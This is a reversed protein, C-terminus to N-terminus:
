KRAPVVERFPVRDSDTAGHVGLGAGACGGGVDTVGYFHLSNDAAVFDKGASWGHQTLLLSYRAVVAPARTGAPFTLRGDVAGATGNDLPELGPKAVVLCTTGERELAGGPGHVVFTVTANTPALETTSPTSTGCAGAAFLLLLAARGPTRMPSPIM